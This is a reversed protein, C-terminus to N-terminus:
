NIKQFAKWWRDPIEQRGAQLYDDYSCSILYSSERNQKIVPIELWWRGTNESKYFVLRHEFADPSVIFKTFNESEDPKEIVRQSFGDILYWITQAALHSTAQLPDFEPNVEGIFFAALRSGQGSYKALQCIEEGHFGNPSVHFNGPADSQRVAGFDLSVIDADRLVPEVDVMNSRVTGLRYTGFYLNKILLLDEPDTFYEQLGINTYNFLFRSRKKFLQHLWNLSSISKSGSHLDIRSDITVLNISKELKEFAEAIGLTLDQSGGIVIPVINQKLLEIIVDRLGFYSDKVEPGIKLNGLDIIKLGKPPHLLQYLKSRIFDPAKAAGKNESNRDDEVGMLAIDYQKQKTIPIDPTHITINRGFKAKNRLLSYPPKGLSVPNFYDNLDM